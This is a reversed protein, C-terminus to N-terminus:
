AARPRTSARAAQIPLRLFFTTGVGLATEFWLSGGHEEVIASRAIALGQGTGKGITKTTFFPEFVRDRVAAPIGPGTDRISVEVSGDRCRTQFTIRGRAGSKGHVEAIAHAANVILNLLVQDIATRCGPVVPIEGLDTVVDAVYRYENRALILASRVAENLDVPAMTGGSPHTFTRMSRVISGVREVGQRAHAASRPLEEALFPMDLQRLAHDAAEALTRQAEPEAESLIACVAAQQRAAVVLLDDISEALFQVSDGVFQIPTNIEHAVGAALRGLSELRQDRHTALERSHLQALRAELAVAGNRVHRDVLTTTARDLRKLVAALERSDRAGSVALAVGVLTAIPAVVGPAVALWVIGALTPARWDRYQSVIVVVLTGHVAASVLPPDVVLSPVILAAAIAFRTEVRGPRVSTLALTPVVAAGAWLATRAVAGGAWGSWLVAVVCEACLLCLLWRDLRARRHALM